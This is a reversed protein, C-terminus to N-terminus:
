RQSAVAVAVGLVRCIEIREGKRGGEKSGEKEKKPTQATGPMNFELLSWGLWALFLSSKIYTSNSVAFLVTYFPFVHSGTINKIPSCKEPSYILAAAM